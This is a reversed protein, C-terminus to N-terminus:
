SGLLGYVIAFAAISVAISIIAYGTLASNTATLSFNGVIMSNGEVGGRSLVQRFQTKKGSPTACENGGARAGEPAVFARSRLHQTPAFRSAAPAKLLPLANAASGLLDFDM